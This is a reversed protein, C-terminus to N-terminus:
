LNVTYSILPHMDVNINAKTWNEQPAYFAFLKKLITLVSVINPIVAYCLIRIRRSTGLYCEFVSQHAM